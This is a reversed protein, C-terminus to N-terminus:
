VYRQELEVYGDLGVARMLEVPDNYPGANATRYGYDTGTNRIEDYVRAIANAAASVASSALPIMSYGLAGLDDVTYGAPISQGTAMLPGDIREVLTKAVEIHEKPSRSGYPVGNHVLALDMPMVLDAGAALFLHCRDIVEELSVIDADTRAIVVFDPDTRAACAARIRNVAEDRGVISRGALVPCHKPLAQDEVHVGAVGAREMERITRTINLIGGFGTDIDAVVPIGVAATIRAAHSVVETMSLLGLDPAGLQTAEVAFGSLHIASFGAREALRASLPDFCSPAVVPGEALLRRLQTAMGNTTM